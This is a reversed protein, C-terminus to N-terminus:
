GRKTLIPTLVHTDLSKGTPRAFLFV